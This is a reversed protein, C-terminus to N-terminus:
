SVRVNRSYYVTGAPARWATRVSGAGPIRVRTLLFGERNRTAVAGAFM